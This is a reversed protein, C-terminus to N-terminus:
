IMESLVKRVWDRRRWALAGAFGFLFFLMVMRSRTPRSRETPLNGADMVNVLPLDNKEELLAQEQNLALSTVLQQQLRLDNELRLGNLRVGPDASAAYGRNAQMFEGLASEKRTLTQRAEALRAQAFQAKAKGRTQNKERLYVELLEITRNVLQQSLEPSQTEASLTMMRTKLDRNVTMLKGVEKLAADRNALGIYAALTETRAEARGFSPRRLAYSFTTDLLKDRMWYSAIIEPYLIEPGEQGLGGFGLLAATTSVGGLASSRNEMPLIRAESRFYLPLTLSYIAALIGVVLGVGGAKALHHYWSARSVRYILANNLM